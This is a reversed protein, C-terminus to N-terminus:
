KGDFFGVADELGIPLQPICETSERCKQNGPYFVEIERAEDKNIGGFILAVEDKNKALILFPLTLVIFPIMITFCTM